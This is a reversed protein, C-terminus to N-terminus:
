PSLWRQVALIIDDATDRFVFGFLLGGFFFTALIPPEDFMLVGTDGRVCRLRGSPRRILRPRAGVLVFTGYSSM